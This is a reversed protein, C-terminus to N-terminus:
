LFTNVSHSSGSLWRSGRAKLQTVTDHFAHHDANRAGYVHSRAMNNCTIVHASLIITLKGTEGLFGSSTDTTDELNRRIVPVEEGERIHRNHSPPPGDWLTEDLALKCRCMKQLSVNNELAGSFNCDINRLMTFQHNKVRRSCTYNTLRQQSKLM